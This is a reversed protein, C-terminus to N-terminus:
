DKDIMRFKKQKWFRKGREVGAAKYTRYRNVHPYLLNRYGNYFRHFIYYIINM